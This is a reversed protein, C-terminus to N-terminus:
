IIISCSYDIGIINAYLMEQSKRYTCLETTLLTVHRVQFRPLNNISPASIIINSPPIKGLVCFCYLVDTVLVSVLIIVTNKM